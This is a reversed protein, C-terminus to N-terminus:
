ACHARAFLGLNLQTSSRHLGGCCWWRLEKVSFPGGENAATFVTHDPQLLAPMGPAVQFGAEEVQQAVSAPVPVRVQACSPCDNSCSDQAACGPLRAAACHM